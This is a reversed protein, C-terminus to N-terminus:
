LSRLIRLKAIIVGNLVGPIMAAIVGASLWPRNGAVRVNRRLLAVIVLASVVSALGM